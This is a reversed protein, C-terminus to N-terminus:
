VKLHSRNAADLLEGVPGDHPIPYAEPKVSWFWYRGKEDSYLHGRGRAESLDDYQVDYFGEDDAQWVEIRADPVPEGTTRCCEAKCLIGNAPPATPSTTATRTALRARL